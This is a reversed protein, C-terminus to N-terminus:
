HALAKEYGRLMDNGKKLIDSDIPEVEHGRLIRKVEERAEPIMGDSLTTEWKMKRRDPFFIQNKFNKATHPHTLFTNGQGVERVLGLDITEENVLHKRLIGRYNEWLYSDLLLQELSGGKADEIQGAGAAMDTSALMSISIWLAQTFSLVFGPRMGGVGWSGTYAPLGYRKAMQGAAASILAYEVTSYSFGGTNMDALTAEACYIHPAGSSASQTIVLSALNEANVNVITGALTVPASMGGLSMSMSVIPIGAKALEAQGEVAGREFSLPAVVCCLTHFLPRKRLEDEGGAILSALEIQARADFPSLTLGGYNKKCNGLATWLAHVMHLSEPVDYATVNAWFFDMGELSDTLRAFDAIDKRTTTRKKGTELDTMYTGIGNTGVYPVGDVPLELDRSGDRSHMCIRKPAKGIAEKVMNEPLRAIMKSEDIDAGNEGLMKLIKPSRVLIGIKELCEISKTHVLSEEDRELFSLRAVAM